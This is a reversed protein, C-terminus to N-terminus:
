PCPHRQGDYGLYTGSGPDYSKFRHACYAATQDSSTYYGAAYGPNSYSTSYLPYRYKISYGPNYYGGTSYSPSYSGTSYDPNYWPPGVAGARAVGGAAVRAALADASVCAIGLAPVAAVYIARFSM